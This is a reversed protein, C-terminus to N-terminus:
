DRCRSSDRGAPHGTSRARGRPRHAVTRPALGRPRARLSDARGHASRTRAATRPGPPDRGPAPWRADWSTRRKLDAAAGLVTALVAEDSTEALASRTRADRTDDSARSGRLSDPLDRSELALSSVGRSETGGAAASLAAHLGRSTRRKSASEDQLRSRVKRNTRRRAGRPTLERRRAGRGGGPSGARHRHAPAGGLHLQRRRRALGSRRAVCTQRNLDCGVSRGPAFATTILAKAVVGQQNRSCEILRARGSRRLM